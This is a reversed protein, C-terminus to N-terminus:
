GVAPQKHTAEAPAAALGKRKRRMAFIHRRAKHEIPRGWGSCVHRVNGRRDVAEITLVVATDACGNRLGYDLHLRCTLEVLRDGVLIGAM